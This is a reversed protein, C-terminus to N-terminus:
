ALFWLVQSFKILFQIFQIKKMSFHKLICSSRLTKNISVTIALAISNIRIGIEYPTELGRKKALHVMFDNVDVKKGKQATKMYQWLAELVDATTLKPIEENDPPFKFHEYILPQKRLPGLKLENFSQKEMLKSIGMEIEHLTSVTYAM